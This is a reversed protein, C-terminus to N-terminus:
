RRRSLGAVETALKLVGVAERIARTGQELSEKSTSKRAFEVAPGFRITAHRPHVIAEVMEHGRQTGDLYAPFVPVGTKIAMMAVGTQFPLLDRSTEIKGEPFVGLVRGHALARLASRTAALDRGSREVPIAEVLKYLWTLAKLDYYEKAMMWTVMRPNAAQVLMPDLGSLHNCVLIAPGRRPIPVPTQVEITHYCRCFLRNAAQAISVGLRRKPPSTSDPTVVRFSIASQPATEATDERQLRVAEAALRGVLIKTM